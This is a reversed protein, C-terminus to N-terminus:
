FSLKTRSITPTSSGAAAPVYSSSGSAGTSAGVPPGFLGNLKDFLPGNLFGLGMCPGHLVATGGPTAVSQIPNPNPSGLTVSPSSFISLALTICKLLTTFYRMTEGSEVMSNPSRAPSYGCVLLTGFRTQVEHGKDDIPGRICGTGGTRECKM